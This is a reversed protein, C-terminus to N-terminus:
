ISGDSNRICILIIEVTGDSLLRASKYKCSSQEIQQKAPAAIALNPLTASILTSFLIVAKLIFIREVPQL